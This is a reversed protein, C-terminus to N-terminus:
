EHQIVVNHVPANCGQAGYYGVRTEVGDDATQRLIKNGDVTIFDPIKSSGAGYVTWSDMELLFSRKRPCYRDSYVQINGYNTEVVVGDFGIGMPGKVTAPRYRGQGQLLLNGYRTPNMFCTRPKGGVRDAEIAANILSEEETMTTAAIVTGLLRGDLNRDGLNNFNEGGTPAAVPLWADFGSLCLKTPTASNQRNGSKFIFDGTAIGTVTNLVASMTLTGNAVTGLGAVTLVSGANRLVATSNAISFVLDMGKEYLVIDEKVALILSTTALNTSADINGICGFGDRYINTCFSHMTGDLIGDIQAVFKDYVTGMKDSATAILLGAITARGYDTVWPVQAQKVTTFGYTTDESKAAAISYTASTAPSNGVRMMYPAFEGSWSKKRLMAGAPGKSWGVYGLFSDDYRRKLGSTLNAFTAGTAM